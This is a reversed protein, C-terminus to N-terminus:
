RSNILKHKVRVAEKPDMGALTESYMQLAMESGVGGYRPDPHWGHFVGARPAGSETLDTVSIRAVAGMLEERHDWVWQRQIDPIALSGVEGTGGTESDRVVLAGVTGAYKGTGEVFDIVELDTYDRAKVKYYSEEISDIPKIVIGEAYPLGRKDSIVKRYFGLPDKGEYREVAHWNANYLRINKVVGELIQRREGVPLGSVDKGNVKVVDWAYAQVPGRQAQVQSAKEPHSNLIGAVRSVGDPHVLEVKLITDGLKPGSDLLRLLGFPSQIRMFELGPLKDYYTSANPATEADRHSRFTWRNSDAPISANALSGDLKWEVIFNEPHPQVNKEIWVEDKLRYNPKPLVVGRDKMPIVIMGKDTQRFAWRGKYDGRPINMEWEKTGPPLAEIALDYHRGARDADHVHYNMRSFSVEGDIKIAVIEDALLTKVGKGYGDDIVGSFGDVLHPDNEIALAKDNGIPLGKPIAYKAGAKNSVGNMVAGDVAVETWLPATIWRVKAVPLKNGIASQVKPVALVSLIDGLRDYATLALARGLIRMHNM